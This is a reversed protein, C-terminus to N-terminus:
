MRSSLVIIARLLITVRAAEEGLVTRGAVALVALGFCELGLEIVRAVECVWLPLRRHAVLSNEVGDRVTLALHRRPSLLEGFALDDRQNGIHSSELSLETESICKM